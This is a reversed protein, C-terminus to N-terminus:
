YKFKPHAFIRLKSNKLATGTGDINLKKMMSGGNLPMQLAARFVPCNTIATQLSLALSDPSDYKSEPIL